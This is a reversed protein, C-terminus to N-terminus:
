PWRPERCGAARVISGPQTCQGAAKRDKSSLLQERLYGDIEGEHLVRKWVENEQVQLVHKGHAGKHLRLPAKHAWVIGPLVDKTITKNGKLWQQVTHVDKELIRFRRISM